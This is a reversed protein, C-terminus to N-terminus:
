KIGLEAAHAKRYEAQAKALALGEGPLAAYAADAQARTLSSAGGEAGAPISATEKISAAAFAPNRLKGQAEALEGKVADYMAAREAALTVGQKVLAALEDREAVLATVKAGAEALLGNAASLEAVVAAHAATAKDLEARVSVTEAKAGELEEIATM